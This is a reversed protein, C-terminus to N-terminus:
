EGVYSFPGEVADFVRQVAEPGPVILLPKLQDAARLHVLLIAYVASRDIAEVNSLDLVIRGADAELAQELVAVLAENTARNLVGSLEVVYTVGETIARRGGAPM